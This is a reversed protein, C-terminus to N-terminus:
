VCEVRGDEYQRLFVLVIAVVTALSYAPQWENPHLYCLHVGRGDDYYHKSRPAPHVQVRPPSLPHDPAFHAQVLFRGEEFQVGFSEWALDDAFRVLRIRGAFLQHLQEKEYRLRREPIV